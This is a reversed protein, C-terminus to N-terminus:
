RAARRASPARRAPRSRASRSRSPIGQSIPAVNPLSGTVVVGVQQAVDETTLVYTAANAGTIPAGNRVWQYTM